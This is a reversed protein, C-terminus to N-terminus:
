GSAPRDTVNGKVASTYFAALAADYNRRRTWNQGSFGVTAAGADARTVRTLIHAFSLPLCTSTVIYM